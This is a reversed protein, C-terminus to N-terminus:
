RDPEVAQRAPRQAEDRVIYGSQVLKDVMRSAAAPTIEFQESIGSM